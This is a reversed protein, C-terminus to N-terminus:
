YEEDAKCVRKGINRIFDFHKKQGVETPEEQLDTFYSSKYFSTLKKLYKEALLLEGNELLINLLIEYAKFKNNQMDSIEIIYERDSCKKFYSLLSNKAFEFDGYEEFAIFGMYMDYASLEKYQFNEIEDYKKQLYCANLFVGADIMDKMLIDKNKIICTDRIDNVNELFGRFKSEEVLGRSNKCKDAAELVYSIDLKANVHFDILILSKLLIYDYCRKTVIEDWSTSKDEYCSERYNGYVCDDFHPFLGKSYYKEWAYFCVEVIKNAVDEREALLFDLYESNGRAGDPLLKEVNRYDILAGSNVMNERNRMYTKHRIDYVDTTPLNELVILGKNAVIAGVFATTYMCIVTSCSDILERLDEHHDLMRLNEPIAGDAESKIIDYLHISNRHTIVKDGPLFRPKIVLEYNPYKSCIGLLTKALEKKGQMSFPYHGSDIFLFRNENNIKIEKKDYKPEGIGIYSYNLYEDYDSAVTAQTPAFCYDGGWNIQRNMLYNHTFIPKHAMFVCIPVYISVLTSCVIIDCWDIEDTTIEKVRKRSIEAPFYSLVKQDFYAAFIRVDDGHLLFAEAIRGLSANAADKETIMLVNM